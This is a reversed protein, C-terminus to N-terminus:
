TSAFLRLTLDSSYEKMSINERIKRENRVGKKGGWENKRENGNRYVKDFTFSQKKHNRFPVNRRLFVDPLVSFL